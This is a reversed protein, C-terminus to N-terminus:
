ISMEKGEDNKVTVIEKIKTTPMQQEIFLHKLKLNLKIKNFYFVAM